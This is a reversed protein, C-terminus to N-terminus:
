LRKVAGDLGILLATADFVKMVSAADDALLAVKTLADAVMCSPAFVSASDMCELPALSDPRLIAHGNEHYYAASTALCRNEMSFTLTERGDSGPTRIGVDRGQWRTMALDGGANVVADHRNGIVALAQDVAYGKAIGGLDLRLPRSFAVRDVGLEIVQWGHACEADGGQDPLLGRRVLGPAVTPDFCGGSAACLRLAFALVEHTEASIPVPELHATRNIRSLESEPEHYSMLSQVRAIRGYAAECLDLLCDDDADASIHVEVYTGLLPRCRRLTNVAPAAGAVM